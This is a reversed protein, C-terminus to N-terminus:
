EKKKKKKKRRSKAKFQSYAVAARQKQDPYEAVMDKDGMFRSVFAARTEGKGPTPLVKALRLRKEAATEGEAEPEPVTESGGEEPTTDEGEPMEAGPPTPPLAGNPLPRGQGILLDSDLEPAHSLGLLDRVENIAPDDPMLTAGAAAMDKIATTVQEIDRYQIQEVKLTPMLAADWGNLEFLPIMFDAEMTEKIEQLTSSVILGFSQTKDKSLAFSGASDSGLLLHEVGLVRAMERNLREIARAMDPQSNTGGQLLEVSWQPINSPTQQEGTSKYTASDLFLATDKGRLANRLFTEIPERLARVQEATLTGATVKEAMAALPGRGVPVGRLDREFGWAELIEYRDLTVARKALHRFLGLGEPSDDLSDDVLYILKGRPLYLEMQTQPSRQIVGLVTGSEDTDWREITKQPRPEIDMFGIAGDERRKATWEQLSFGYFRFMAARRVVRHWPTTMDNMIDNITEAIEEAQESDDAPEVKWQAKSVLNLFFRVGAAVITTNALMNAYTTFKQKGTLRADKEAEVIFGGFIAFGPAGISAYPSPKKDGGVQQVLGVDISTM